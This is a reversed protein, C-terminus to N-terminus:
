VLWSRVPASRRADRRLPPSRVSAARRRAPAGRAAQGPHTLRARPLPLPAVLRAQELMNRNLTVSALGTDAGGGLHKIVAATRYFTRAIFGANDGHASYFGKRDFLRV